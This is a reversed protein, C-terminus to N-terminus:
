NGEVVGACGREKSGHSCLQVHPYASLNSVIWSKSLQFGSLCLVSCYGM